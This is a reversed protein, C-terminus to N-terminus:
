PTQIVTEWSSYTNSRNVRIIFYLKKFLMSRLLMQENRGSVGESCIFSSICLCLFVLGSSLASGVTLAAVILFRIPPQM